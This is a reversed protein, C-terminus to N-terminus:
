KPIVRELNIEAVEDEMLAHSSANPRNLGTLKLPPTEGNTAYYDPEKETIHVIFIAILLLINISISFLLVVTMRRYSAIYFGKTNIKLHRLRASM